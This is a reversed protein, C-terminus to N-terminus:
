EESYKRRNARKESAGKLIGIMGYIERSSWGFDLGLLAGNVVM